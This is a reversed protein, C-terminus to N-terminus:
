HYFRVVLALSKTSSIDTSEDVILSFKTIQLLSVLQNFSYKGTVNEIVKTAKTRNCTIKEAIKSDPCFVKILQSFHDMSLTNFSINHEVAFLTM